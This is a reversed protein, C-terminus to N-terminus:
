TYVLSLKKLVFEVHRCYVHLIATAYGALQSEVYPWMYM